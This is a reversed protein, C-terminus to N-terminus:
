QRCCMAAPQAPSHPMQQCISHHVRLHQTGISPYADLKSSQRFKHQVHNACNIPSQHSSTSCKTHHSVHTCAPPQPQQLLWLVSTCELTTRLVLKSSQSQLAHKAPQECTAAPLATNLHLVITSELTTRSLVLESSQSQLAHQQRCSKYVTLQQLQHNINM